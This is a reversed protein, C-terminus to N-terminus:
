DGEHAELKREDPSEPGKPGLSFAKETKFYCTDM